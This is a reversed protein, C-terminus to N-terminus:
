ASSQSKFREIADAMQKLDLVQCGEIGCQAQRGGIWVEMSAPIQTRLQSIYSRQAGPGLHVMSLAIADVRLRIAAEAVSRVPLQAGLNIVRAGMQAATGAAMLLGLDHLEQEATTFLIRPADHAPSHLEFARLLFPRIAASILHESAISLLGQEWLSGVRTLLPTAVVSKFDEAGLVRFQVTLEREVELNDLRQAAEIVRSLFTEDIRDIPVTRPQYGDRQHDREGQALDVVADNDLDVIDGIRHGAKM